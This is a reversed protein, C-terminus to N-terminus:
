REVDDRKMRQVKLYSLSPALEKTALAIVRYGQLFIVNDGAPIWIFFIKLVTQYWIRIGAGTGRHLLYFCTFFRNAEFAPTIPPPPRSM